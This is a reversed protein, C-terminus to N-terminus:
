GCNIAIEIFATGLIEELVIYGKNDYGGAIDMGTKRPGKRVIKRPSPAPTEVVSLIYPNFQSRLKEEIQSIVAKNESKDDFNM